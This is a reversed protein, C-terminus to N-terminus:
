DCDILRRIRGTPPSGILAPVQGVLSLWHLLYVFYVICIREGYLISISVINFIFLTQIFYFYLNIFYYYSTLLYLPWVYFVFTSIYLLFLFFIFKYQFNYFVCLLIYFIFPFYAISMFPYQIYISFYVITIFESLISIYIKLYLYLLCFLLTFIDFLAVNLM